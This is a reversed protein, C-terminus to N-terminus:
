EPAEFDSRRKRGIQHDIPPGTIVEGGMLAVQAVMDKGSMSKSPFAGGEGSALSELAGLFEQRAAREEKSTPPFM